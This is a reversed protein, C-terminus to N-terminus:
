QMAQWQPAGGTDPSMSVGAIAVSADVPLNEGLEWWVATFDGDFDFVRQERVHLAAAEDVTASIAVQPCSYEKALAVSPFAAAAALAFAAIALVILMGTVLVRRGKGITLPATGHGVRGREEGSSLVSRRLGGSSRSFADALGSRVLIARM